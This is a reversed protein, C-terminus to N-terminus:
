CRPSAIPPLGFDCIASFSASRSCSSAPARRRLVAYGQVHTRLHHKRASVAPFVLLHGRWKSDRRLRGQLPAIPNGGLLAQLTQESRRAGSGWPRDVIGPDIGRNGACQLRYQITSLGNQWQGGADGFSAGMVVHAVARGRQERGSGSGSDILEFEAEGDQGLLLDTV